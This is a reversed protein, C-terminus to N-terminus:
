SRSMSGAIVLVLLRGIGDPLMEGSTTSTYPSAALQADTMYAYKANFGRVTSKFWGSSGMWGDQPRIHQVVLLYM